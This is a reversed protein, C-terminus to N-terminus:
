QQQFCSFLLLFSCSSRTRFDRRFDSCRIGCFEICFLEGRFVFIAFRLQEKKTLIAFLDDRCCVAGFDSYDELVVREMCFPAALDAVGAGQSAITGGELDGIGLLEGALEVAM